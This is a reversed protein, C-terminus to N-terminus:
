LGWHAEREIVSPEVDLAVTPFAMPDDIFERILRWQRRSIGIRSDPRVALVPFLPGASEIVQKARVTCEEDDIWVIPTPTMADDEIGIRRVVARLKGDRLGTGTVPAYWLATRVDRGDWGLTANLAPTYPQWTSLWVLEITGDHALAVMDAALERSWHVPYAMSGAPVVAEGDLAFTTEADARADANAFANLVGDFDTYVVARSRQTKQGDNMTM